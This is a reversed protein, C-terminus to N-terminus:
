PRRSHASAHVDVGALCLRDREVVGAVAAEDGPRDPPAGVRREAHDARLRADVRGVPIRSVAQEDPEEGSEEEDCTNCVHFTTCDDSRNAPEDVRCARDRPAVELLAYGYLATVLEREEPPREVLH